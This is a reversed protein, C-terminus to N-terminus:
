MAATLRELLLYRSVRIAGSRSSYRLFPAARHLVDGDYFILREHALFKRIHQAACVVGDRLDRVKGVHGPLQEREGGIQHQQVQIQRLHASKLDAAVDLLAAGQRHKHQCRAILQAVLHVREFEPCVFVEGFGISLLPQQRADSVDELAVLPPRIQKLSRIKQEVPLGVREIDVVLGDDQRRILAFQEFGQQRM